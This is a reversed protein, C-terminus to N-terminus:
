AAVKSTIYSEIGAAIFLMVMPIIFAKFSDKNIGNMGIACAIFIAPLEIIGHPLLSLIYSSLAIGHVTFITGVFGIALGNVLMTLGPVVGRSIRATLFCITAALLNKLFIAIMLSAPQTIIKRGIESQNVVKISEQVAPLLIPVLAKYSLIGLIIGLFM